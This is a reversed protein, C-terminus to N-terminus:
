KRVELIYRAYDYGETNVIYTKGARKLVFWVPLKLPMTGDLRDCPGAANGNNYAQESTYRPLTKILTALLGDREHAIEDWNNPKCTARGRVASKQIDIPSSCLDCTEEPETHGESSKAKAGEIGALLNAAYFRPDKIEGAAIKELAEKMAPAAKYVPLMKSPIHHLEKNVAGM